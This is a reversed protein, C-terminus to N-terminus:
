CGHAHNRARGIRAAAQALRQWDAEDIKRNALLDAAVIAVVSVEESVIALLDHAPIRSHFPVLSHGLPKEFLDSLELGLAALVDGVECGAFCHLLVRSDELERVSLSPTRDAHAPCRGSWRHPGTQRVLELRNLLKAAASV